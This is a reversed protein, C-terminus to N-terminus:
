ILTNTPWKRRLPGMLFTMKASDFCGPVRTTNRLYNWCFLAIYEISHMWFGNLCRSNLFIPGSTHCWTPWCCPYFDWSDLDSEQFITTWDRRGVIKIAHMILNDHLSDKFTGSDHTCLISVITSRADYLFLATVVALINCPGTTSDEAAEGREGKSIRLYQFAPKNFHYPYISAIRTLLWAHLKYQATTSYAHNAPANLYRKAPRNWIGCPMVSRRTLYVDVTCIRYKFASRFAALKRRSTEETTCSDVTVQQNDWFARDWFNRCSVVM